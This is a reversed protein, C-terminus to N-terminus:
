VRGFTGAPWRLSRFFRDTFIDKVM